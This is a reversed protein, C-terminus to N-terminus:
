DGHEREVGPWEPHEELWDVVWPARILGPQRPDYVVATDSIVARPDLAFSKKSPPHEHVFPTPGIEPSPTELVFRGYVDFAHGSPYRVHYKM